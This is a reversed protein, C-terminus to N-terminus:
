KMGVGPNEAPPGLRGQQLLAPVEGAPVPRSFLYGQLEACGASAALRAQEETEVGEAVVGCDFARAMGTVARVIALNRRSEPLPAVLSRDVKITDFGLTQLSGISSYGTGFDDMAVRVGMDRLAALVERTLDANIMAQTETIEIVLYGPDLGTELLVQRILSLLGEGDFRALSLNVAVPVALLGDLQWQRCQRCALRLMEADIQGVLGCEEATPIFDGPPVMPEGPPQWRALVELGTIWRSGADVKPQFHPVLEGSKLARRLKREMELRREARESMANTYYEYRGRGHEKAYYLAADARKMLLTAEDGDEPFLSIGISAGVELEHGEILYPESVAEILKEAVWAADRPDALRPLLIVFEDGGQRSVTDDERVNEQLRRAVAQLLLDGVEHGLTDNVIKFHDLDLFILGGRRGQPVDALAQSLRDQLLVRNPLDTLYDHQALHSMRLAMARSESVDHFVMVGGVVQGDMGIIPAASDEVPLRRGDRNVLLSNLALGVIRRDRMAVALPALGAEGTEADLLQMVEDIPRGIADQLPWGTMEEAVRNLYRVRSRPDVTIVADGISALTTEALQKEEFLEARSRALAELALRRQSSLVSVVLPLGATLAAYFNFSTSSLARSAVGMGDAGGLAHEDFYLRLGVMLVLNASCLLATGLRGVYLAAAVLPLTIVVFPRSLYGVCLATFLLTLAFLALLRPWGMGHRLRAWAAADAGLLPPLMLVAGFSAAVIWTWWIVPFDGNELLARVGAPALGGLSPGVLGVLLIPWFLSRVDPLGRPDISLARLGAVALGVALTSGIAHALMLAAQDGVLWGVALRSLFGLALYVGAWQGRRCIMGLLLASSVWASAVNGPQRTLLVALVGLAVYAVGTAALWPLEQRLGAKGGM